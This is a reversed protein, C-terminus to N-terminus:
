ITIVEYMFARKPLAEEYVAISAAVESTSRGYQEIGLSKSSELGVADEREVYLKFLPWILAHESLTLDFDQDGTFLNTADVPSHIGQGPEPFLLDVGAARAKAQAVQFESPANVLTAWGCYFKIADKLHRGIQEDTLINGLPREALFAALLESCRM